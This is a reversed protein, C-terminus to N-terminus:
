KNKLFDEFSLFDKFSNREKLSSNSYDNYKKMREIIKKSVRHELKCAEIEAFDEPFLLIQTLFDALIGHYRTLRQITEKGKETLTVPKYPQYNILNAEKLRKLASTVSSRKCGVKEALVSPSVPGTKEQLEAIAELYTELAVTIKKPKSIKKNMPDLHPFPGRM